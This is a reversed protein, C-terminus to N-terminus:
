LNKFLAIHNLVLPSQGPPTVLLQVALTVEDRGLIVRILVQNCELFFEDLFVLNLLQPFPFLVRLQLSDLAAQFCLSKAIKNEM